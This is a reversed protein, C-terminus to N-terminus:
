IGVAALEHDILRQRRRHKVTVAADSSGSSDDIYRSKPQRGIVDYASAYISRWMADSIVAVTPTSADLDQFLRGAQPRVGLVDFFNVSVATYLAADPSPGDPLPSGFAAISLGSEAAADAAEQFPIYYKASGIRDPRSFVEVNDAGDFPQKMLVGDAVSALSMLLAIATASLCMTFATSPWRRLSRRLFAVLDSTM